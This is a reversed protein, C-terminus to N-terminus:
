FKWVSRVRNPNFPTGKVTVKDVNITEIVSKLIARQRDLNLSKWKQAIIQPSGLGEVFAVVGREKALVKELESKRETAVKMAAQYQARTFEGEAVMEVLEIFRSDLGSLEAHTALARPNPKTQTLSREMEPSNLRTLVAEVIFDEVLNATIYIGGCGRGTVTDKRCMYRRRGEKNNSVLKKGCIGCVLLGVLLATRAPTDLRKRSNLFARIAEEEELSIIAPWTAIAM